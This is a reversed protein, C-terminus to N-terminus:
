CKVHLKICCKNRTTHHSINSIRKISIVPHTHSRGRLPFVVAGKDVVLHLTVQNTKKYMCVRSRRHEHVCVFMWLLREVSDIEWIDRAMETRLQLSHGAHEVLYDM